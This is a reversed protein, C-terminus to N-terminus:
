EVPDFVAPIPLLLIRYKEFQEFVAPILLYKITCKTRDLQYEVKMPLIYM